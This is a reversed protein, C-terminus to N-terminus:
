SWLWYDLHAVNIPELNNAVRLVNISKLLNVCSAVTAARLEIEEASDKPIPEWAQIRNALPESVDIIGLARLSRPVEYDAIPGVRDIDVFPQVPSQPDNESNVARDHLVLAVLQARKYFPFDLRGISQKDSGYAVPFRNVLLDILGPGSPSTFARIGIRKGQTNYEGVYRLLDTPNEYHLLLGEIFNRLQALRLEPFPIDNFGKFFRVVDDTTKFTEDLQPSTIIDEGFGEYFKRVMAFAGTLPKGEGFPVAYKEGTQLNFAANITNHALVNSAFALNNHPYVGDFRWAPIELVDRYHTRVIEHLQFYNITVNHNGHEFELQKWSNIVKETYPNFGRSNEHEATQRIEKNGM